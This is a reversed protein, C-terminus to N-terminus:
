AGGQAEVEEQTFTHRVSLFHPYESQRRCSHRRWRGRRTSTRQYARQYVGINQSLHPAYRASRSSGDQL